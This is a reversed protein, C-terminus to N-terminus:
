SDGCSDKLFLEHYQSESLYKHLWLSLLNFLQELEEDTMRTVFHRVMRDDSFKQLYYVLTNENTERDYGFGIFGDYNEVFRHSHRTMIATRQRSTAQTSRRRQPNEM